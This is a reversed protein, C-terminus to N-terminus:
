PQELFAAVRALFAEPAMKGGYLARKLCFIVENNISRGHKQASDKIKECLDDPVSKISMTPM